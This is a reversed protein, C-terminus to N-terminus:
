YVAELYCKECYVIEPRKQAFTTLIEQNCKTCSRKWLQWPPLMTLRQLYRCNPCTRPIPSDIKKYLRLEQAIIKYLKGCIECTLVAKTIDENVELIDDPITINKTGEFVEHEEDKWKWGKQLTEEKSLPFYEHAVTENYCFPSHTVPFFEGWENNKIMHEIIKAIMKEYEEKSYKKNLICYSQRKLGICGFCDHCDHCMDCYLLNYNDYSISCFASYKTRNCAHIEYQLECAFGSEYTDHCDKLGASDICFKGDEADIVNFSNQLNKCHYLFNGTCNECNIHINAKHFTKRMMDEFEKKYRTYNKFSNIQMEALKKTYEEKSYPQNRIYYEKHKLHTCMFCNSCHDCDYLFASDQCHDCLFLEAGHYNGVGYCNDACLQSQELHYSDIIDKCNNLIWKSYYIDEGFGVDVCLYCNKAHDCHNTYPSNENGKQYLNMRPVVKQLNKWQDFFSKSFDYDRGYELPDWKDSWWIETDYVTFPKDPSYISIINEGTFNCNRKYLKRENRFAARRQQRCLPCLTPPPFTYKKGQILPSAKEYFKLDSETIEFVTECNKCNRLM